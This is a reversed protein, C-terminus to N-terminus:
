SEQWRKMFCINEMFHQSVVDIALCAKKQQGSLSGPVDKLDTHIHLKLLSKQLCFLYFTTWVGFQDYIVCM